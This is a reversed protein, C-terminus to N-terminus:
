HSGSLIKTVLKAIKAPPKIGAAAFATEVKIIKDNSPTRGGNKNRNFGGESLGNDACFKNERHGTKQFYKDMRDEWTEAIKIRDAEAQLKEKRTM